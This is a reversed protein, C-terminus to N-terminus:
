GELVDTRAMYKRRDITEAVKRVSGLAASLKNLSANNQQIWEYMPGLLENESKYARRVRRIDRIKKYVAYGGKCDLDDHLEAFHDLDQLEAEKREVGIANGEYTAKVDRCFALFEAIRKEPGVTDYPFRKTDLTVSM